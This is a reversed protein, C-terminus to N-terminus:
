QVEASVTKWSTSKTVRASFIRFSGLRGLGFSKRALSSLVAEVGNAEVMAAGTASNNAIMRLSKSAKQSRGEGAIRKFSTERFYTRPGCGQFLGGFGREGISWM